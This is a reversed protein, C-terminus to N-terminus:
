SRTSCRGSRFCVAAFVFVTPVWPVAIRFLREIGERLFFSTTPPVSASVLAGLATYFMEPCESHRVASAFSAVAGEFAFFLLVLEVHPFHLWVSTSQERCAAVPNLRRKGRVRVLGRVGGEEDSGDPQEDEDVPSLQAPVEALPGPGDLEPTTRRM